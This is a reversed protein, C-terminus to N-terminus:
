IKVTEKVNINHATFGKLVMNSPKVHSENMGMEKFCKFYIINKTACTDVLVWKVRCKDIVERTM